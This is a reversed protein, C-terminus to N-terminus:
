MSLQRAVSLVREPEGQHFVEVIAQDNLMPNMGVMLARVTEQSGDEDELLVETVEALDRMYAEAIKTPTDEERAFAGIQRSDTENIAYATLQQGLVDQLVSAIEALPRDRLPTKDEGSSEPNTM